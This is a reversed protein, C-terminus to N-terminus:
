KKLKYRIKYLILSLILFFFALFQPTTFPTNKYGFVPHKFFEVTIRLFNYFFAYQLSIEGSFKPKKKLFYFFALLNPIAEYLQVPHLPINKPAVVLPDRFVVAWPFATSKGYCCGNLFCGLRMLSLVLILTPTTIDSLKWFSIKEKLSFFLSFIFGGLVGGYLYLGGGWYIESFSFIRASPNFLLYLIRAGLFSSIIGGLYFYIAKKKNLGIEKIKFFFPFIGLFIALILILWYSKLPLRGLYFLYLM